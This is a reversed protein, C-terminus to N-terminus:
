AIILGAAIALAFVIAITLIMADDRWTFRAEYRDTM